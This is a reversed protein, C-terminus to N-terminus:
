LPERNPLPSRRVARSEGVSATLEAKVRQIQSAANLVATEVKELVDLAYRNAEAIARQKQEKAHRLMEECHTRTENMIGQESMLYQAREQATALIRQAELQAETIIKQREQLVRRAQRLERPFAQRLGEVLMQLEAEDVMVKGSFPVRSSRGILDALQELLQFLDPTPEAIPYARHEDAAAM